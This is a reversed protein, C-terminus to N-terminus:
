ILKIVKLYLYSTMIAIMILYVGLLVFIKKQKNKMIAKYKSSYNEAQYIMIAIYEELSFKIKEELDYLSYAEEDGTEEMKKININIEYLKKILDFIEESYDDFQRQMRVKQNEALYGSWILILSSPKEEIQKESYFIDPYKKSSFIVNVPDDNYKNSNSPFLQNIKLRKNFEGSIYASYLSVGKVRNAYVALTDRGKYPVTIAFSPPLNELDIPQMREFYPIKM